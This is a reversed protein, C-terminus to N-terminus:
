CLMEVYSLPVYGVEAGRSVRVWGSNDNELVQFSEDATMSLEGPNSGAFDYIARCSGMSNAVPAAEDGEDEFEESDWTEDDPNPEETETPQNAAPTVTHTPEQTAHIKQQPPAASTSKGDMAELWTVFKHREGNLADIARSRGDLQKEVVKPDGLSPNTQYVQIMKELATKEQMEKAITEELNRLKEQLKKRRKAPPLHSFDEKPENKPRRGGFLSTGAQKQKKTVAVPKGSEEFPIDSPPKYGTKMDDIVVQMDQASNVAKAVTTINDLCAIVNSQVHREADAYDALRDSLISIRKEEMKQLQDFVAPMARSYHERQLRNTQDLQVVYNGKAEEEDNRKQRLGIKFREVQTRSLNFDQDAKDFAQQAAEADKSAREYAKKTRDLAEMAKKLHELQKSGDAMHKRRDSSIEKALNKLGDKVKSHMSEVVLEHQGALSDTENIVVNFARIWGHKSEQDKGRYSKCLRRLKKAYEQEIEIREKAFSEVRKVFDIGQDTYQLLKEYQDWLDVGWSM